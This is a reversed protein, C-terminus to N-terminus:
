FSVLFEYIFGGAEIIKTMITNVEDISLKSINDM